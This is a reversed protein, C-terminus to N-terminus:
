SAVREQVVVVGDEILGHCIEEIFLPNGATREFILDRLGPPVFETKFVSQMIWESDQVDLPGLVM